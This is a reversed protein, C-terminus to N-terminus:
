PHKKPEHSDGDKLRDPFLDNVAPWASTQSSINIFPSSVPIGQQVPAAPFAPLQPQVTGANAVLALDDVLLGSTGSAPPELRIVVQAALTGFPTESYGDYCNWANESIDHGRISIVIGPPIVTGFPSIFNVEARINSTGKVDRSLFRRAFFSFRISSGPPLFFVVQSMEAISTSTSLLQASKIGSYAIDSYTSVTGQTIYGTFENEFGRNLLLQRAM